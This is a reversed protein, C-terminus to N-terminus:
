VARADNGTAELAASALGCARFERPHAQGVAGVGPHADGLLRGAGRLIFREGGEVQPSRRGRM